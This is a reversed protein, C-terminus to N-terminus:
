FTLSIELWKFSFILFIIFCGLKICLRDKDSILIKLLYIPESYFENYRFSLLKFYSKPLHLFISILADKFSLNLLLSSFTM